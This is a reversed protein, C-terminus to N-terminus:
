KVYYAYYEDFTINLERIKTATEVGVYRYHYPEYTFGTIKEKGSPYRLIFGYEHAHNRLWRFENTREFDNESNNSIDIALGTQYESYGARTSVTDNIYADNLDQHSQYANKIYLTLEEEKAADAMKKFSDYSIQLIENAEGYDKEIITLNTPIYSEDLHYYKNVLILAGKTFDANETNTYFNYDANSNVIAVTTSLDIKNNKYYSIYRELNNKIFYKEKMFQDILEDYTTIIEDIDQNVLFVIKENELEPNEKQYNIYRMFRNPDFNETYFFQLLDHTIEINEKQLGNNVVMVLEYFSLEKNKQYFAIYESFNNVQFYKEKLLPYLEETRIFYEINEKSLTELWAFETESFGKYKLHVKSTPYFKVILFIALTIIVIIVLTITIMKKKKRKTLYVNNLLFM